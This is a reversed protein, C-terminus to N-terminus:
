LLETGAARMVPLRHVASGVVAVRRYARHTNSDRDHPGYGGARVPKGDRALCDCQSVGPAAPATEACQQFFEVNPCFDPPVPLGESCELWNRCEHEHACAICNTRAEYWVVGRDIRAASGPNVGVLEMMRDMLEAQHFIRNFMPWSYCFDSM